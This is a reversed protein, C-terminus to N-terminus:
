GKSGRRQVRRVSQNITRRFRPKPLEAGGISYGAGGIPFGEGGIPFGKGGISIGEGGISFEEGGISFEIGGISNGEAASGQQLTQFDFGEAVNAKIKLSFRFAASLNFLKKFTYIGYIYPQILRSLKLKTRDM